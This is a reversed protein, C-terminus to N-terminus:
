SAALAPFDEFDVGRDLTAIARNVTTEAAVLAAREEQLKAAADPFQAAAYLEAAEQIADEDVLPAISPALEVARVVEQNGAEAAELYILRVKLDNGITRLHDRIERERERAEAPDTGKPLRHRVEKSLVPLSMDLKKRLLRLHEATGQELVPRVAASLQEADARRRTVSDTTNDGIKRLGSHWARLAQEANDAVGAVLERLVPDTVDPVERVFLFRATM